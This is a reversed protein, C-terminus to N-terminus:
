ERSYLGILEASEIVHGEMATEVEEKSVGEVLELESDLAYVKFFYRHTGSPPSPGGYELKRFSNEGQTGPVSNESIEANSIPINFVVWHVWDGSSADPDDVVLVLSKANEPIDVIQLPPNINDGDATYKAPISQENEFVSKIQM